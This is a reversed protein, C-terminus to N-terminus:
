HPPPTNALVASWYLVGAIIICEAMVNRRITALSGARGNPSASAENRPMLRVRNYGGITVVVAATLLKYILVRGYESFRLRDLSFGLERLAFYSGSVVIV